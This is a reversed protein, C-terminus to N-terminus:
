CCMWCLFFFFSIDLFLPVQTFNAFSLGRTDKLLESLEVCGKLRLNLVGFHMECAKESEATDETKLDVQFFPLFLSNPFILCEEVHSCGIQRVKPLAQLEKTLVEQLGDLMKSLDLM